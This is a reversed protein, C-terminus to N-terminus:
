RHHNGKNYNNRKTKMRLKTLPNNNHHNNNNSGVSNPGRKRRKVSPNTLADLSSADKLMLIGGSISKLDDRIMEDSIYHEKNWNRYALKMYAGIINIFGDRKPGDEMQMAAKIMKHVNTGYHRFRTQSPPYNVREPKKYQDEKSIVVEEPPTVELEYDAIQFIHKWLKLRYDETSKSQPNMQNMLEIIREVFTQRYAEDELHRAYQVLLQINRGYEPMRLDDKQSNYEM